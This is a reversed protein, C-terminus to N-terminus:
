LRGPVHHQLAEAAWPQARVPAVPVAAPPVIAAGGAGACTRAAVRCQALEEDWDAAAAMAADGEEGAGRALARHLLDPHNWVRTAQTYLEFLGACGPHRAGVAALLGTYLREQLPALRVFLTHEHKAGLDRRLIEHGRRQVFGQIRQHLVHTRFKMLRVDGPTSDVCQGNAIPHGYMNQFEALTGLFMPRVFDVM